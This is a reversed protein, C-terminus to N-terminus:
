LLTKKGLSWNKFSLNCNYGFFSSPVKAFNCLVLYTKKTHKYIKDNTENMQFSSVRIVSKDAQSLDRSEVALLVRDFCM